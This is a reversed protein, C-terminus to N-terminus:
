EDVRYIYKVANVKGAKLYALGTEIGGLGGPVVETPHGSFWGEVLGKAILSTFALGIERGDGEPIHNVGKPIHLGAAELNLLGTHVIPLWALSVKLTGPLGLYDTFPVVVVMHGKKDLVRALTSVSSPESIADLANSVSEIGASNLATEISRVVTDEGDRYDIITDGQSRDILPEVFDRSKGAIVILPHINSRRALKIAFAGLATSGGYIILPLKTKSGEWPRPLKLNHYLAVAATLAALPISAAEEFSVREPILFTTSAPTIAYEAYAGGTAEGVRHLGAVRDGQKFEVVGEGVQEVIGAADDGSNHAINSYSPFKWDKPNSGAYVVKILVEGRKPAPISSEVIKVSLDPSVIAERM